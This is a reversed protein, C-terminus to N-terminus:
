DIYSLVWNVSYFGGLAILTYRVSKGLAVAIFFRKVDHGISGCFLGMFDFPVLPFAAFLFIILESRYKRFLKETKEIRKKFKKLLLKEGAFGIGYGSLEGIASGFGASLGVIIPNLKAASLFVVASLPFTPFIITSASVAAIVFIGLYGFTNIIKQSWILFLEAYGM